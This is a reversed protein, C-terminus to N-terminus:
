FRYALDLIAAIHHRAVTAQDYRGVMKDADPPDNDVGLPLQVGLGASIAGSRYRPGITVAFGTGLLGDLAVLANFEAVISIEETISVPAALDFFLLFGFRREIGYVSADINDMVLILCGFDTQLSVRGINQGFAVWPTVGVNLRPILGMDVLPKQALLYRKGFNSSDELTGAQVAAVDSEEGIRSTPAILDLGATLHRESAPDHSILWRVGRERDGNTFETGTNEGMGIGRPMRLHVGVPGFAWAGELVFAVSDTDPNSAYGSRLRVHSTPKAYLTYLPEQYPWSDSAAAPEDPAEEEAPQAFVLPSAALLVAATCLSLTRMRV